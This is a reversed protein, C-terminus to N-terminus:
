FKIPFTLTQESNSLVPLPAGNTNVWVYSEGNSILEGESADYIFIKFEEGSSMGDKEPTSPDDGYIQLNIFSIDDYIIAPSSGVVNGVMDKAVVWDASDASNGYISFNAIAMASTPTPKIYFSNVSYLSVTGSVENSVAIMDGGTPSDKMSIFEISEPAIDGPAGPHYM